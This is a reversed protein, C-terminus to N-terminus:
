IMMKYGMWIPICTYYDLSALSLIYKKDFMIKTCSKRSFPGVTINTVIIKSVPSLVNGSDTVLMLTCIRFVLGKSNLHVIGFQFSKDYDM